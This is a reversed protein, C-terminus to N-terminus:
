GQALWEGPVADSVTSYVCCAPRPNSPMSRACTGPDVVGGGRLALATEVSSEHKILTPKIAPTAKFAETAGFLAITLLLQKMMTHNIPKTTSASKSKQPQLALFVTDTLSM